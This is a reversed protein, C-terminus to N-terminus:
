SSPRPLRPRVARLQDLTWRCTVILVFFPQAAAVLADTQQQAQGDTDVRDVSTGAKPVPSTWRSTPPIEEGTLAQAARRVVRRYGEADSPLV